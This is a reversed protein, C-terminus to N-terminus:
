KQILSSTRFWPGEDSCFLLQRAMSQPSDALQWKSQVWEITIEKNLEVMEQIRAMDVRLRLDAIINSSELHDKLSM